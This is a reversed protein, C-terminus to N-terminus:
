CLKRGIRVHIADTDISTPQSDTAAAIGEDTLAKALATAAAGFKAWHDPHVDIIVNTVSTLGISALSPDVYTETNGPSPIPKWGALLLASGISHMLLMPEPDGKPGIAGDFPTGLFPRLKGAIHEQQAPFLSRAALCTELWIIKSRQVGSIREESSFLVISFITEFIVGWMVFWFAREKVKAPYKDSEFIIGIGLLVASAIEAQLLFPNLTSLVPESFLAQVIANM